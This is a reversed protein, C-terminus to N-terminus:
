RHSLRGTVKETDLQRLAPKCSARAFIIYKKLIDQDIPQPGDDLDPRDSGSASDLKRKKGTLGADGDIGDDAEGNVSGNLASDNDGPGIGDNDHNQMNLEYEPHSKIHSDVM